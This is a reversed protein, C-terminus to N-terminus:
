SGGKVLGAKRYEELKDRPVVAVRRGGNTILLWGRDRLSQEMAAVWVDGTLNANTGVSVSRSMGLGERAVLYRRGTIQTCYNLAQYVRWEQNTSAWITTRAPNRIGLKQYLNFYAAQLCRGIGGRSPYPMRLDKDLHTVVLAPQEDSPMEMANYFIRSDLIHDLRRDMIGLFWTVCLFVLVAILSVKRGVRVRGGLSAGRNARRRGECTM